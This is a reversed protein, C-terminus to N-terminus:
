NDTTLKRIAPGPKAFLTPRPGRRIIAEHIKLEGGNKAADGLAIDCEDLLQRAGHVERPEGSELVLGIKGRTGSRILHHHLGAAALLAPIPSMEPSVGRDSLILINAGNKIARDADDFVKELAEDLGEAGHAATFLIPLTESKFGPRKIFRLKDLEENTLIPQDLRILACSEPGPNLLNGRAGAMTHTSTVIEERIPDIPPNTVQAFLQKFYNYLLQPKESLVALPTDTGMSGLPQQGDRAM